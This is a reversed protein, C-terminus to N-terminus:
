LAIPWGREWLSFFVPRQLSGIKEINRRCFSLSFFVAGLHHEKLNKTGQKQQIM